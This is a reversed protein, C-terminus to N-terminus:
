EKAIVLGARGEVKLFKGHGRPLIDGEGNSDHVATGVRGAVWRVLVTEQESQGHPESFGITVPSDRVLM